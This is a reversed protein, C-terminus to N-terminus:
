ANWGIINVNPDLEFPITDVGKIKENTLCWYEHPTACYKDLLYKHVRVIKHSDILGSGSEANLCTLFM